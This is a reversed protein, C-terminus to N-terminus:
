INEDRKCNLNALIKKVALARNLTYFHLGPAGGELLRTCLSSVVEVGFSELSKRDDRYEYMRREIWRPIDAGCNKSFKVLVHYNYLPMVGPIIPLTIDVLNCEDVFRQYAEDNYFYQTICATAGADVKEKLFQLDQKMTEADPHVEPYCAVFLQLQQGFNSRVLSVLDKASHSVGGVVGSPLDGRLAVMGEVGLDLYDSIQQLMASKSSDGWSLHPYTKRGLERLRKVTEFTREKTSGGAGYTVSFFDPSEAQFRAASRELNQLDEETRPPFFEFSLHTLEM